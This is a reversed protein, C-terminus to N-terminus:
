GASLTKDEYIWLCKFSLTFGTYFPWEFISLVFIKIVFPLKTFCEANSKVQMLRYNTKFVIKKALPLKVCTKSYQVPLLHCVAALSCDSRHGYQKCYLSRFHMLLLSHVVNMPTAGLLRNCVHMNFITVNLPPWRIHYFHNEMGFPVARLPFFQSERPAFEKGKSFNGNQLPACNFLVM